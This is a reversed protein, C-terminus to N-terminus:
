HSDRLKLPNWPVNFSNNQKMLGVNWGLSDGVKMGFREFNRRM